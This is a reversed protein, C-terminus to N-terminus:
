GELSPETSLTEQYPIQVGLGAAWALGASEAEEYTEYPKGEILVSEDEDAEGIRSASGTLDYKGNSLMEITICDVDKSALKGVPLKVIQMAAAQEADFKCSAEDPPSAWAGKDSLVLVSVAHPETLVSAVALRLNAESFPKTLAVTEPM